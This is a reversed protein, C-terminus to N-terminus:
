FYISGYIKIYSLFAARQFYKTVKSLRICLAQRLRNNKSPYPLHEQFCSRKKQKNKIKIEPYSICPPGLADTHKYHQDEQSYLYQHHM